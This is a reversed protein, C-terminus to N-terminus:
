DRYFIVQGGYGRGGEPGCNCNVGRVERRELIHRVEGPVEYNVVQTIHEERFKNTTNVRHLEVDRVITNTAIYSWKV